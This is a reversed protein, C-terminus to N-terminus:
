RISSRPTICEVCVCGLENAPTFVIDSGEALMMQVELVELKLDNIADLITQTENEIM